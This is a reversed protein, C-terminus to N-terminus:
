RIGSPPDDPDADPGVWRPAGRAKADYAAAITAALRERPAAQPQVTKGTVFEIEDIARRDSTNAMALVLRDSRVALPLILLAEAVERPVADLADTDIVVSLLDVERRPVLKRQLPVKGLPRRDDPM